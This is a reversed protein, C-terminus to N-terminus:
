EYIGKKHNLLRTGFNTKHANKIANSVFKKAQKIATIEDKKEALGCTIASSFSCGAGHMIKPELLPEKFKFIEGNQRYLTDECEKTLNTRKLLTDCPLNKFDINLIKAEDLNPTIITAFPLIERLADLADNQLLQAGSKSVCVPDIVIPIKANKMKQLWTAVCKIIEKNFLMGVKIANIQMLEATIMQMQKSLFEPTVPLVDIVGNTNQATLATIATASYCGFAECTKIDAQIGAGGISDSGAIIIINKM